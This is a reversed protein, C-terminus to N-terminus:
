CFPVVRMGCCPCFATYGDFYDDWILEKDDVEFECRCEQCIFKTFREISPPYVSGIHIIRKM